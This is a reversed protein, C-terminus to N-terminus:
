RNRKKPTNKYILNDVNAIRHLDEIQRHYRNNFEEIARDNLRKFGETYKDANDEFAYHHYCLKFKDDLLVFKCNDSFIVLNTDEYEPFASQFFELSEEKDYLTYELEDINQMIRFCVGSTIEKVINNSIKKYLGPTEGYLIGSYNKFGGLVSSGFKEMIEFSYLVNQVDYIDGDEDTIEDVRPRVDPVVAVISDVDVCMAFISGRKISRLIDVYSETIVEMSYDGINTSSVKM